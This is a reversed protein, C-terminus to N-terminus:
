KVKLVDGRQLNPLRVDDEVALWTMVETFGPDVTSRGQISFEEGAAM